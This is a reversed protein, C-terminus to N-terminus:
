QSSAEPRRWPAERGQKRGEERWGKQRNRNKWRMAAVAVFAAEGGGGAVVCKPLNTRKEVGALTIPRDSAFPREDLHPLARTAIACHLFPIPSLHSLLFKLFQAVYGFSSNGQRQGPHQHYALQTKLPICLLFCGRCCSWHPKPSPAGEKKSVSQQLPTCTAPM